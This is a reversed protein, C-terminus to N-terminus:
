FSQCSYVVDHEHEPRERPIAYSAVTLYALATAPELGQTIIGRGGACSHHHVEERRDLSSHIQFRGTGLRGASKRRKRLYRGSSIRPGVEECEFGLVEPALRPNADAPLVIDASFWAAVAREFSETRRHEENTAAIAHKSGEVVSASMATSWHGTILGTACAKQSALKV